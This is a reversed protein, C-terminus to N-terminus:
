GAIAPLKLVLLIAIVFAYIVLAEILALSLILPAQVSDKAQPNRAIGELASKAALGQGIGGGFAAIGLGLGAGLAYFAGASFGNDAAAGATQAFATSSALALLTLTSAFATFKKM